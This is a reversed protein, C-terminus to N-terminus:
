SRRRRLYEEYLHEACPIATEYWAEWRGTKNGGVLLVARRDPDFIFLVRLEGGSRVRLEKLSHLRSGEIRDVTPRGLTPGLDRLLEVRADLADAQGEQLSRYWEDFEDTVTVEWRTM